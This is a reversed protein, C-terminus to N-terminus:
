HSKLFSMVTLIKCLQLGNLLVFEPTRGLIAKASSFWKYTQTLQVIAYNCMNVVLYSYCAWKHQVHNKCSTYLLWESFFLLRNKWIYNIVSAYLFSIYLIPWTLVFLYFGPTYTNHRHVNIMTTDIYKLYQIYSWCSNWKKNNSQYCHTYNIFCTHFKHMTM